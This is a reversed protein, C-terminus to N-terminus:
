SISALVTAEGKEIVGIAEKMIKVIAVNGENAVIVKTAGILGIQANEERANMGKGDTERVITAEVKTKIGIM